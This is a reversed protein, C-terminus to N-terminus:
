DVPPMQKAERGRSRGVVIRIDLLRIVAILCLAVGGVVAWVLDADRSYQGDNAVRISFVVLLWPGVALVLAAVWQRQRLIAFLVLLALLMATAVPANFDNWFSRTGAVIPYPLQRRWMILQSGLALVLSIATWGVTRASRGPSGLCAIVALVAFAALALTPPRGWAWDRDVFPVLLASSLVSIALLVRGVRRLGVLTAVFALLWAVEFFVAASAFPGFRYGLMGGIGPIRGGWPVSWDLGFFEIAALATGLGLAIAAARDRVSTPLSQRARERLGNVGLNLLEGPRPRSRGDVEAADLMTGVIVDANAARWTSPYWVLARRYRNELASLGSGATM